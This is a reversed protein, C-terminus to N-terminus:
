NESKEGKLYNVLEDSVLPLSTIDSNLAQSIASASAAMVMAKLASTTSSPITGNGFLDVEIDLLPDSLNRSNTKINCESLTEIIIHKFKLKLARPDLLADFSFRGWVKRAEIDLTVTNVGIEIVVCGWSKSVFLSSDGSVISKATVSETIPLPQLFRKGKILRCCEIIMKVSREVDLSLVQPGSDVMADTNNQVFKIDQFEIALEKTIVSRWLDGTKKDPFFSSNIVIQNDTNLTVQIKSSGHYFSDNSLGGIGGGCAIGIGPAYDMFTALLRKSRRQLEYAACHRAFDSINSTETILDRLRGFSPYKIVKAREKSESYYNVRWNSPRIKLHRVMASTHAETSFLASSYGLDGFFHSPKTPTEIVIIQAKFAALPYLPILGALTQKFLEASFLPYSGQEIRVIVEEALPKGQEDLATKRDIVFRSKSTSLITNINVRSNSKLVALAAICSLVTPNILKEDKPSFHEQPYVIVSKLTRNCLTAVSDRVNFPWQTPVRIKLIDDELYASVQTIASDTKSFPHEIYQKEFVSHSQSFVSETDGWGYEVPSHKLTAEESSENPSYEIILDKLRSEVAEKSPGFLAGIPEGIYKINEKAFLPFSETFVNISNQGVIDNSDIIFFRSESKPLSIKTVAASSVGSRIIAGYLPLNEERIKGM